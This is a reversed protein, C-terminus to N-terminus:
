SSQICHFVVHGEWDLLFIFQKSFEIGIEVHWSPCEGLAAFIFCISLEEYFEVNDYLLVTEYIRFVLFDNDINGFSHAISHSIIRIISRMICVTNLRFGIEIHITIINRSKNSLPQRSQKYITSLLIWLQTLRM